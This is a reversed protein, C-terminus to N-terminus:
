GQEGRLVGRGRLRAWSMYAAGVALILTALVQYWLSWEYESISWSYVFALAAFTLQLAGTTVFIARGEPRALVLIGAVAWALLVAGVWRLGDLEGAVVSNFGIADFFSAPAILLPLAFLLNIFIYVVMASTLVSAPDRKSKPVPHSTQAVEDPLPPLDAPFESTM